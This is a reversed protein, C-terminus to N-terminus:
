AILWTFVGTARDFRQSQLHRGSEAALGRVILLDAWRSMGLLRSGPAALVAAADGSRWLQVPDGTLAICRAGRAAFPTLAAEDVLRSDYLVVLNEVSGALENEDVGAAAQALPM